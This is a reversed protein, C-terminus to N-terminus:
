ASSTSPRSAHPRILCQDAPYAFVMVLDEGGINISRHIWYPPAYCITQPRIEVIRTEGDPAELQM